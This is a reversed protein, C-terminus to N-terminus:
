HQTKILLYESESLNLYFTVATLDIVDTSLVVRFIDNKVLPAFDCCCPEIELM